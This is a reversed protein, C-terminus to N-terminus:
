SRLESLLQSILSAAVGFPIRLLNAGTRLIRGVYKKM